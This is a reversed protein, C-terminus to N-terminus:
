LPVDGQHMLNGGRMTIINRYLEAFYIRGDDGDVGRAHECYTMTKVAGTTQRTPRQGRTLHTEIRFTATVRKGGSPWDNIVAEM